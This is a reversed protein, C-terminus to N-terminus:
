PNTIKLIERKIEPVIEPSPLSNALRLIPLMIQRVVPKTPTALRVESLLLLPKVADGLRVSKLLAESGTLILAVQELEVKFLKMEQTLSLLVRELKAQNDGTLKLEIVPVLGAEQALKTFRSALHSNTLIAMDDLSDALEYWIRWSVFDFGYQRYMALRSNLGDLGATIRSQRFGPLQEYGADARVGLLVNHPLNIKGFGAVIQPDLLIASYAAPLSDSSLMLDALEVYKGFKFENFIENPADIHLLPLPNESWLRCIKRLQRHFNPRGRVVKLQAFDLYDMDVESLSLEEGAEIQRAGAMLLGAEDEISLDLQSVVLAVRLWETDPFTARAEGEIVTEGDSLWWKGNAGQVFVRKTSESIKIQALAQNRNEAALLLWDALKALDGSTPQDCILKVKPNEERYEALFKLDDGSLNAARSVYILDIPKEPKQWMANTKRPQFLKTQGDIELSYWVEKDTALSGSLVQYDQELLRRLGVVDIRETRSWDYIFPTDDFRLDLWRRGTEDALTELSKTLHLTVIEVSQGVLYLIPKGAGKVMLKIISSKVLRRM